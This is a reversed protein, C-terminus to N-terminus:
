AAQTGPIVTGRGPLPGHGGPRGARRRCMGAQATAREITDRTITPSGSEHRATATIM